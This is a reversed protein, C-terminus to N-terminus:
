PDVPYEVPLIEIQEEAPEFYRKPPKVAFAQQLDKLFYSGTRGFVRPRIRGFARGGGM